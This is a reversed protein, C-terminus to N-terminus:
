EIIWNNNGSPLATITLYTTPVYNLYNGESAQLSVTINYPALPARMSSWLPPNATWTTIDASIINVLNLPKGGSCALGLNTALNLIKPNTQTGVLYWLQETGYNCSTLAAVSGFAQLCYGNALIAWSSSSVSTKLFTWLTNEVPLLMALYLAETESISNYASNIQLYWPGQYYPSSITTPSGTEFYWLSQYYFSLPQSGAPGLIIVRGDEAFDTYWICNYPSNDDVLAQGAGTSYATWPSSNESMYLVAWSMDSSTSFIQVYQNLKTNTITLAQGSALLLCIASISQLLFFFLRSM